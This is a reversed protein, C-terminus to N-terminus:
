TKKSPEEQKIAEIAVDTIEDLSNYMGSEDLGNINWKAIKTLAELFLNNSKQLSDFDDTTNELPFYCNGVKGYLKGKYEM